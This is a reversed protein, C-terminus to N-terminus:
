QDQAPSTFSCAVNDYRAEASFFPYFSVLGLALSQSANGTFSPLGDLTTAGSGDFSVTSSNAGFDFQWLVHTWQDQPVTLAKSASIYAADAAWQGAWHLHGFRLEFGNNLFIGPVGIAFTALILDSGAIATAYMDWECTVTTKELYFTKMVYAQAQDSTGADRLPIFARLSNPASRSMVSDIEVVGEFVTTVSRWPPVLLGQADGV